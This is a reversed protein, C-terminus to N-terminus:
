SFLPGNDLAVERGGSFFSYFVLLFLFAIASVRAAVHLLLLKSIVFWTTSGCVVPWVYRM